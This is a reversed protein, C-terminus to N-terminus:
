AWMCIGKVRHICFAIHFIINKIQRDYRGLNVILHYYLIFILQFYENPIKNIDKIRSTLLYICFQSCMIPDFMQFILVILNIFSVETSILLIFIIM